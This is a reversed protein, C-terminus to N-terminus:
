KVLFSNLEMPGPAIEFTLRGDSVKCKVPANTVLDAVTVGDKWEGPLSVTFTKAKTGKHAIGLYVGNATDYRRVKVESDAPAVADAVVKGPIAPLALFAQAFRRHTNIFGRGYTYTTCTLVDPDGHFCALVEEAMGFAPGGPTLESTEYIDGQVNRLGEYYTFMNCIALGEGTRWYNIYPENDALYNWHVPALFNVGKVGHWLDMPARMIPNSPLMKLYDEPKVKARYDSERKAMQWSTQWDYLLTYDMPVGGLGWGDAEWQYYYFKLDPRCSKLKESIRVLFEIRKKQWWQEYKKGTDGSSAWKALAKADGNPLALGNEKCFFEVDFKSYSIQMRDCRLRWLLGKLQKYQGAYQGILETILREFDKWTEPHLLDAGWNSYRGTRAPGGDPGICRAEQPLDNSGGYEVRVVLGVSHKEAADLYQKYIAREKDTHKNYGLKTEWYAGFHWKHIVPALANLGKFKAHRLADEANWEPEREWDAMLTRQPANEPFTIKPSLKDSDGIEYLKIRSAAAGTDWGSCYVRGRDFFSIWFGNNSKNSRSGRWGYDSGDPFVLQDYWEFNGSLPYAKADFKDGTMFGGGQYNAGSDINMQCFRHKDEPYEVRVLYPTHPKIERGVRYMFWENNDTQRYKRGNLEQVSVGKIWACYAKTGFWSESIGGEKYPHEDQAPDLACDIEDVLKLKGYPTDEYKEPMPPLRKADRADYKFQIAHGSFVSVPHGQADKLMASFDIRESYYLLRQEEPSLKLVARGIGDRGPKLPEEGRRIHRHFYDVLDFSLSAPGDGIACAPLRFVLELAQGPREGMDYAVALKEAEPGTGAPRVAIACANPYVKYGPFTLGGGMGGNFVRVALTNYAGYRVEEPKAEYLLPDGFFGTKKVEAGNLYLIGADDASGTHFVVPFGKWENPVFVKQRYWGVGDLNEFTKGQTKWDIGVEICEWQSDDFDPKEWGEKLGRAKEEWKPDKADLFVDPMCRWLGELSIARMAPAYQFSGVRFDAFLMEGPRQLCNGGQGISIAKVSNTDSMGAFQSFPIIVEQWDGPKVYFGAGWGEGWNGWKWGGSHLHIAMDGETNETKCRFAIYDYKRAQWAAGDQGPALLPAQLFEAMGRPNACIIAIADQGECAGPRAEWKLRNNTGTDFMSLGWRSIRSKETINLSLPPQPAAAAPEPRFPAFRKIGFNLAGFQSAALGGGMYWNWIRVAVSNWDGFKVKEQPLPFSASHGYAAVGLSEGDWYVEAADDPFGASLRLGPAGAWEKPVFVAQRYWVVGMHFAGVTNIQKEWPVGAQLAGWASDDFGPKEWGNAEGKTGWPAGQVIQYRWWGNMDIWSTNPDEPKYGKDLALLRAQGATWGGKGGTGTVKVAIVNEEGFRVLEDKVGYSRATTPAKEMGGVKVGNWYTEDSNDASPLCLVVHKGKWEAPVRVRTRYWAVGAYNKGQDKWAGPVKISQWGTDDFAAGFWQGAEGKEEPDLAFKWSGDPSLGSGADGAFARSAFSLLALLIM